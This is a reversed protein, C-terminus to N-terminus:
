RSCPNQHRGGGLPAAERKGRGPRMDHRHQAPLGEEGGGGGAAAELRDSEGSVSATLINERAKGKM